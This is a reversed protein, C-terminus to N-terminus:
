ETYVSGDKVIIHSKSIDEGNDITYSSLAKKEKVQEVKELRDSLEKIRVDREDVSKKLTQIEPDENLGLHDTIDEISKVIMDAWSDFGEGVAKKAPYPYKDPLEKAKKKKEEEIDKDDKGTVKKYLEEISKVSKELEDLRDNIKKSKELEEIDKAKKLKEEEEKEKAKKEEEEKKKKDEDDDAKYIEDIDM